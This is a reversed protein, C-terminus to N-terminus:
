QPPKKSGFYIRHDGLIPGSNHIRTLGHGIDVIKLLPRPESSKFFTLAWLLPGYSFGQISSVAKVQSSSALPSSGKILVPFGISTLSGMVLPILETVLDSPRQLRQPQYLRLDLGHARPIHKKEPIRVWHM